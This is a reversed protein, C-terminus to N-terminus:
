QTKYHTLHKKIHKTNKTITNHTKNHKTTQTKNDKTNLKKHKKKQTNKQTKKKQSIASMSNTHHPTPHYAFDNEHRVWSLTINPQTSNHNLQPKSM